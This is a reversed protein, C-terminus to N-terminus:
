KIKSQMERSIAVKLSVKYVMSIDNWSDYSLELRNLMHQLLTIVHGNHKMETFERYVEYM